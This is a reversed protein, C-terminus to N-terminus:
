GVMTRLRVVQNLRFGGIMGKSPCLYRKVGSNTM